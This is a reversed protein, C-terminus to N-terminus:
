TYWPATKSILFSIRLSLRRCGVVAAKKHRRKEVPARRHDDQDNMQGSVAIKAEFLWPWARPPSAVATVWFLIRWM